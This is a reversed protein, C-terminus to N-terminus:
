ARSAAEAKSYIALTADVMKAVPFERELRERGAAGMSARLEAAFLADIASAVGAADGASCLRGTVNDVVIEPIASVRTAVIPRRSAMAELLVLGFGEYDSCLAFIDFAQMVAPIDERRGAWTLAQEVGKDRARKRLSAELDGTGVVVLRLARGRARLEALSDILLDIRKQTVIRAVTGVVVEDAAIGWAARIGAITERTVVDYPGPALGYHIPHVKDPPLRHQRHLYRAVAHSIAIVAVAGREAWFGGAWFLPTSIPDDSHKSIVFAPRARSRAYALRTFVEAAPLHAHLVDPATSDILARLRGVIRLDTYGSWELAVVNVGADRLAASWYGDGKLYAVTVKWGREAQGAALVKLHNEAGGRNITTVVHLVSPM